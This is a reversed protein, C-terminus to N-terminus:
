PTPRPRKGFSSVRRQLDENSLGSVGELESLAAGLSSRMAGMMREEDEADTLGMDRDYQENSGPRKQSRQWEEVLNDIQADSMTSGTALKIILEGSAAMRAVDAPSTGADVDVGLTVVKGRMNLAVRQLSTAALDAIARRMEFVIDDCTLDNPLTISFAVQGKMVAEIDPNLATPFVVCVDGVPVVGEITMSYFSEDLDELVAAEPKPFSIEIPYKAPQLTSGDAEEEGRAAEIESSLDAIQFEVVESDDRSRKSEEAEVAATTSVGGRSNHNHDLSFLKKLESIEISQRVHADKMDTMVSYTGKIIEEIVTLSRKNNLGDKDCVEDDSEMDGAHMRHGGRALEQLHKTYLSLQQDLQTRMATQLKGWREDMKEFVLLEIEEASREKSQSLAESNSPLPVPTLTRVATEWGQRIEVAVEKLSESQQSFMEKLDAVSVSAEKAAVPTPAPPPSIAVLSEGSRLQLSSILTSAQLIKGQHVLKIESLGRANEGPLCLSSGIQSVLQQVTTSTATDGSCEVTLGSPGTVFFAVNGSSENAPAVALPVAAVSPPGAKTEVTAGRTVHVDKLMKELTAVGKRKSSVEAELHRTSELLEALERRKHTLARKQETYKGSLRNLNLALQEQAHILYEIMLQAIRFLKIVHPDTMLRLDEERLNLFTIEEVHRQLGDIDVHKVVHDLDIASLRRLDLRGTRQQFAFAAM